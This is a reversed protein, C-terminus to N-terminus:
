VWFPGYEVRSYIMDSDQSIHYWEYVTCGRGKIQVIIPQDRKIDDHSTLIRTQSKTCPKVPFRPKTHIDMHDGWASPAVFMNVGDVHEFLLCKITIRALRVWYTRYPVNNSMCKVLFFDGVKVIRKQEHIQTAFEKLFALVTSKGHAYALCFGNQVDNKQILEKWVLQEPLDTFQTTM